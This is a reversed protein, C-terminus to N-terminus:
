ARPLALLDCHGISAHSASHRAACWAHVATAPVRGTELAAHAIGSALEAMLASDRPAELQWPTSALTVDYGVDVFAQNLVAPADPGASVGFGKDTKQHAIFAALVDRDAEHAPSWHEMGDYTLVTYFAAGASAIDMAAQRIFAESCLDFLASATVCHPANHLLAGLGRSLDAQRFTVKLRKGGKHLLLNEDQGAAQDAWATLAQRAADLLLPDYDVLTWEQEAGLDPALARLNSGSGCGLDMVKATGHHALHTALKQALAHDRARHDAPERLALWSASFSM